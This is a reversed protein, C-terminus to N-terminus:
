FSIARRRAALVDRDNGCASTPGRRLILKPGLELPLSESGLVFWAKRSHDMDIKTLLGNQEFQRLAAGVTSRPISRRRRISEQYVADANLAQKKMTLLLDLLAVRQRTPRLKARRLAAEILKAEYQGYRRHGVPNRAITQNLSAM